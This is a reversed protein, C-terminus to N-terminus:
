MSAKEFSSKEPLIMDFAEKTKKCCLEFYEKEECGTDNLVIVPGVKEEICNVIYDLKESYELYKGMQTIDCPHFEGKTLRWYRFVWHSFDMPTRFKNKSARDFEKEYTEWLLKFVSKKHAIPLHFDYYSSFRGFPLRLLNDINKKGYCVSIWKRFNKLNNTGGQFQKNVIGMNNFVIHWVYGDLDYNVMTKAWLMDCAQDNRFFMEERIEDIVFIDDNFLIFNESLDEIRHLNMEITNSNYTPLYEAPIYDSHKVIRLKPHSTDLWEPVHGWTVFFIKRYWNVNKELGRFWYRMLGWDRFRSDLNGSNKISNDYQMREKLWEPDNGDVWLVVIYVESNKM